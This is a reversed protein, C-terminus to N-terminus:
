LVALRPVSAPSSLPNTPSLTGVLPTLVFLSLPLYPYNPYHVLLLPYYDVIISTPIPNTASLGCPSLTGNIPSYIPSSYPTIVLESLPYYYGVLFINRFLFSKMIKTYAAQIAIPDYDAVIPTDVLQPVRYRALILHLVGM